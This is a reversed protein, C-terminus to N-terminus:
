FTFCIIVGFLFVVCYFLFLFRDITKAVIRWEIRFHDTGDDGTYYQVKRDSEIKSESQSTQGSHDEQNNEAVHSENAARVVNAHETKRVQLRYALSELINRRMWKSMPRDEKERHYLRSVFSLSIIIFAMLILCFIFFIALLPVSGNAMNLPMKEAVLLIFVMSALMLTLAVGFREGSEAPLVFTFIMLATIVSISFVLLTTYFVHNRKFLFHFEAHYFKGMRSYAPIEVYTSKHYTDVIHWATNETYFDMNLPDKSRVKIQTKKSSLTEFMFSCDQIDNPYSRVDIECGAKLVLRSDWTLLGNHNLILDPKMRRLYGAHDTDQDNIYDVLIFDPKWVRDPKISIREIGDYEKPNWTLRHDKWSTGLWVAMEFYNQSESIKLLHNPELEVEVIVNDANKTVPRVDQDYNKFIDRRLHTETDTALVCNVFTTMIILEIFTSFGAM